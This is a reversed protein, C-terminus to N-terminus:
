KIKGIVKEFNSTWIITSQRLYRVDRYPNTPETKEILKDILKNKEDEALPSFWGKSGSSLVSMDENISTLYTNLESDFRVMRNNPPKNKAKRKEALRKEHKDKFARFKLAQQEFTKDPKSSSGRKKGLLTKKSNSRYEKLQTNLSKIEERIEKSIAADTATEANLKVVQRGINQIKALQGPRFGSVPEAYVNISALIAIACLLASLTPIFRM